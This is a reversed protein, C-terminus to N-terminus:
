VIRAILAIYIILINTLDIASTHGYLRIKRVNNV